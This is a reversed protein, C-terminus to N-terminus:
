HNKTLPPGGTSQKMFYFLNLFIAQFRASFKVQPVPPGASVSVRNGSGRNKAETRTLPPILMLLPGCYLGVLVLKM